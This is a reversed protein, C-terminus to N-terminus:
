ATSGSEDFLDGVSLARCLGEVCERIRAGCTEYAEFSGGVPDMIAGANERMSFESLLKVRHAPVKLNNIIQQKQQPTMPCILYAGRAMKATLRRAHHESLDEGWVQAIQEAGRSVEAGNSAFLGASSASYQEMRSEGVARWAALALPSRCTNGSCVFLITRTM